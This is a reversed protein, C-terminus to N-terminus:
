FLFCHLVELLEKHKKNAFPEKDCVTSVQQETLFNQMSSVAQGDIPLYSEKSWDASWM